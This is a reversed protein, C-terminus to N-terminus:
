AATRRRLAFGLLGLGILALPAPAPVTFQGPGGALPACFLGCPDNAIWGELTNGLIDVSGTIGFNVLGSLGNRSFVLAEAGLGPLLTFGGAALTLAGNVNSNGLNLVQSGFNMTYDIIEGAGVVMDALAGDNLEIFGTVADGNNLGLASCNGVTCAGAYNFIPGAQATMSVGLLVAIATLKRVLSM